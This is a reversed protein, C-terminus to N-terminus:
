QAGGQILTLQPKAVPVGLLEATERELETIQSRLSTMLEAHTTPLPPEPMRDTSM